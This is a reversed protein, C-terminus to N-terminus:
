SADIPVRRLARLRGATMTERAAAPTIGFVMRFRATFHSHSAFGLEFALASLDSEDDALRDLALSLRLRLLYRAITEGAIARFQRALHYPSCSVALAVSTLDWRAAPASALLARVQDVRRRQRPGIAGTSWRGDAFGASLAQLLRIAGEEANLQDVDSDRLGATIGFVTLEDRPELRGFSRARGGVWEELLTLPPVIVTCDDGDNGPHSVRCEDDVDVVFVSGADVLFQEGQREVGFVGRRAAIIQPIGSRDVAGYGTRPSRLRVDYVEM